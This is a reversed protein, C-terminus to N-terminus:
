RSRKMSIASTASTIRASRSNFIAITTRDTRAVAAGGRDTIGRYHTTAVSLKNRDYGIFAHVCKEIGARNWHNNHPNHGLVGDDPGVYRNLNPNNAGTSHVVIGKPTIKEGRKYCDNETLYLTNYQM